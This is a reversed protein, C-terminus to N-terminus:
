PGRLAKEKLTGYDKQHLTPTLGLRAFEDIMIQRIPEMDLRTTLVSDHITFVPVEPMELMIRRCVTNIIFNAEVNQLLRPLFRYDKTKHVRIVEAVSPFLEKFVDKMRSKLHNSGFLVKFLETKVRHLLPMEQEEMEEKLTRYLKGQECLTVFHQEDPTLFDRNVSIDRPLNETTKFDKGTLLQEEKSSGNSPTYATSTSPTIISEQVPNFFSVTEEIIKDIDRYQNTSNKAFTVYGFTKNGQRRFNIILLSLFLPQSNAIDLMVLSEGSVRLAPRIRKSCRTLSTHVRGYRCVSFETDNDAIQEVPIKVLEFRHHGSLLSVALPLDVNLTKFKSRLWVHVDLRVKKYTSQRAARLKDATAKDSIAIRIIRAKRCKEHLRYGLSKRGEIFYRDCKIVEAEILAKKLPLIIRNPIVERLYDFKLPVYNDITRRKSMQGWIIRHLFYRASDAHRKLEAPLVEPDFNEPVYICCPKKRDKPKTSKKM